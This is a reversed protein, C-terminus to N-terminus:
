SARARAQRRKRIRQKDQLEPSRKRSAEKAQVGQRARTGSFRNSGPAAGRDTLRSRALSLAELTSDANASKAGGGARKPEPLNIIIPAQEQVPAPAIGADPQGVGAAARDLPNASDASPEEGDRGLLFNIFDELINEM